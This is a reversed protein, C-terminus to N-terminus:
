APNTLLSGDTSSESTVTSLLTACKWSLLEWLLYWKHSNLLFRATTTSLTSWTVALPSSCVAHHRCSAFTSPSFLVLSPSWRCLWSSFDKFPWNWAAPVSSLLLTSGSFWESSFFSWLRRSSFPFSCFEPTGRPNVLSLQRPLFEILVKHSAFFFFSMWLNVMKWIRRRVGSVSEAWSSIDSTGAARFFWVTRQMTVTASLSLFNLDFYTQKVFRPRFLHSHYLQSSVDWNRIVHILFSIGCETGGDIFLRFTIKSKSLVSVISLLEGANSIYCLINVCLCKIYCTIQLVCCLRLCVCCLWLM